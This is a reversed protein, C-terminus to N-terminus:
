SERSKGKRGSIIYIPNQGMMMHYKGVNKSKSVQVQAIDVNEIRYKKFVDLTESMTELAIATVVFNIEEEGDESLQKNLIAEIIAEMNGKSGGIFVSSPCPLGKFAEPAMGEIINLQDAQFQEKNNHILQVADPNTEIAYVTGNGINLAMEISVSGTGAGVDYAVTDRKLSLKSLIVARVESKTMPVKGRLFAEDPIGITLVNRELATKKLQNIVIIVSLKDYTYQQLEKITGETIRETEYSLNEGIYAYVSDLGAESLTNLISSVNGGTLFFTKEQEKVTKVVDVEAGHMSVLKADEWSLGVKSFFYSVSSIGPLVRPQIGEELLAKRIEKTGSHFGTDGSMLVVYNDYETQNVYDAIENHKYSIFHEADPAFEKAANVMRTAGILVKAEKITDMAEVTITKFNGMGIGVITVHKM